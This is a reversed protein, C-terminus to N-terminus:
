ENGGNGVELVYVFSSAQVRFHGPFDSRRYAFKLSVDSIARCAYRSGARPRGGRDKISM